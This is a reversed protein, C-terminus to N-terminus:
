DGIVGDPSFLVDGVHIGIRVRQEPDSNLSSQVERACDVADLASHFSALTGDGIDGIVRGNFRAALSRVAERHESLARIARREDRGMLATYGAIDSFMIAALERTLNSPQTHSPTPM